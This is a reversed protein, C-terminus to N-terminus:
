EPGFALLVNGFGSNGAGYGSGIFVMGGAVEDSGMPRAALFEAIQRKQVDSVPAAQDKMKGTTLAEYVQEPSYKQLETISPAQKGDHCTGCNQQFIPPAARFGPRPTANQAQPAQVLLAALLLFNM